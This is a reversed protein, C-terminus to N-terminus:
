CVFSVTSTTDQGIARWQAWSMYGYSTSGPSSPGAFINGSCVTYQNRSFQAQNSFPQQISGVVGSPSSWYGEPSRYTVRIVNDHVRLNTLEHLGHAGSGRDTNTGGIGHRNDEVTNGYIEVNRSSNVLIGSGDIWGANEFGTNRVVNNRIVADYSAEHFIGAGAVDEVRNGEFLSGINDWDTWLGPGCPEDHSYNNRIVANRTRLIKVSSTHWCIIPIRHNEYFESGEVIQGDGDSTSIGAQGNDHVLGNRFEEFGNVGVSHNLRVELDELVWGANGQIAGDSAPSAFKEVVLGRMTVNVAGTGWSRLAHPAVSVEVRHGAPQNAIYIRDSGHDFYFEGSSLEGLSGVRRLFEDDYYVDNTRLCLTGGNECPDPWGPDGYGEMTMGSAVWVSGSQTFSNTIDLAGSLIAGPQGVFTSGSKPVVAQTFRYVGPRFCFTTAGNANVAPALTDTGPAVAVGSCSGGSGQNSVSYTRSAPTSRNGAVDYSTVEVVHSGNTESTTDWPFTYPSVTSTGRLTGDIRFEVKAVGLNDSATVAITVQSSLQGGAPPSGIAVTPSTVDITWTTGAAGSELAANRAKVEFRHQGAAIGTYSQPSTCPAFSASDLRCV